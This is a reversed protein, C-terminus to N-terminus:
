NAPPEIALGLALAAFRRCTDDLQEVVGAVAATVNAHLREPSVEDLPIDHQLRLEGAHETTRRALLRAFDGITKEDDTM